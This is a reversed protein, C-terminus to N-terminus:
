LLFSMLVRAGFGTTAMRSGAGAGERQGDQIGCRCRSTTWGPDQMWVKEKFCFHDLSNGGPRGWWLGLSADFDQCVSQLLHTSALHICTLGAAAEPPVPTPPCLSYLGHCSIAHLM